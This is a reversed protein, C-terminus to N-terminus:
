CQDANEIFADTTLDGGSHSAVEALKGVPNRIDLEAITRCDPRNIALL